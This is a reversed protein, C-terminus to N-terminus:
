LNELGILYNEFERETLECDYKCKKLLLNWGANTETVNIECLNSFAKIAKTLAKESYLEKKIEM